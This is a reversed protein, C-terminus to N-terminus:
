MRDSSDGAALKEKVRDIVYKPPNNVLMENFQSRYNKILSVGEVKVDYVRWLGGRNWMSYTVPIDNKEGIVVTDVIAKRDNVIETENFQVKEGSYNDVIKDIYNDGLLKSFLDTFEKQQKENFKRWHPGLALRAVGEFDFVDPVIEWIKDELKDRNAQGQYEPKELLDTFQDINNQLVEQPKPAAGVGAALFLILAVAVVPSLLRRTTNKM